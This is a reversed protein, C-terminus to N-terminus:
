KKSGLLITVDFSSDNSLEEENIQPFERTVVGTIKKRLDLPLYPKFKLSTTSTAETNGTTIELNAGLGALEMKMSNAKGAIGTGNLVEVTLKEKPTAEKTAIEELGFPKKTKLSEIVQKLQKLNEVVVTEKKRDQISFASKFYIARFLFYANVLSIVVILFAVAVENFKIKM